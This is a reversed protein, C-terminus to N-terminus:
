LWWLTGVDDRGDMSMRSWQRTWTIDQRTLIRCTLSMALSAGTSRYRADPDAHRPLRSPM